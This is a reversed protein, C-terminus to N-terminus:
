PKQSHLLRNDCPRQVHRGWAVPAEARTAARSNAMRSQFPTGGCACLAASQRETGEPPALTTAYNWPLWAAPTRFVASRHEQLAVLYDLANGGAHLCTAILSTLLSGVSAGHETAYFLSNNRQRIALKLAREATNNELPAGPTTLFRTLPQWHTRLYQFAKGLRSNPEVLRAECQQALWDKLGNMIPGSSRQHYALRDAANLQQERAADEHEFVQRLAQIVVACEEPFVEELETCTRRGHALGHCHILAEEAATRSGSRPM